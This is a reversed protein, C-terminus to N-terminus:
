VEEISALIHEPDEEAVTMFVVYAPQWVNQFLEVDRHVPCPEREAQDLGLELLM